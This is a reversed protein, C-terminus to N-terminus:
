KIIEVQTGDLLKRQGSIILTEGPDIGSEIEVQDDYLRGVQVTKRIAKGEKYVFVYRENTGTQKLVALSPVLNASKEGIILEIRAFMGPRLRLSNNDMIIEITFTRTMPDITPHIRYIKGTFEEEPYIDLRIKAKMGEKIEPFYSESVNIFVKVPNIQMVSVIAAKGIMPNPAMSFIEGDNQYKGTIIGDIPAVLRTNESLFDLNTKTIDYQVKLQEHKQKSISGISLLTDMREMNHKLTEFQVQVQRLQTKDMQVLIDGKKVKDGVEVYIKNIRGPSAPGIHNERFARITGTATVTQEVEKIQVSAIKVPLASQNKEENTNSDEVNCASFILFSLGMINLITSKRKTKM